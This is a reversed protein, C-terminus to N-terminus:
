LAPPAPNSGAVALKPSQDRVVQTGAQSTPSILHDDGAARMQSGHGSFPWNTIQYMSYKPIRPSGIEGVVVRGVYRRSM